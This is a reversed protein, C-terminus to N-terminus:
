SVKHLVLVASAGPVGDELADVVKYSVGKITLKDGRAPAFPLDDLKIGFTLANSSIVQETDPDVVQGGDGFVGLIPITGGSKPEYIAEGTKTGLTVKIKDFATKALTEFDTPPM